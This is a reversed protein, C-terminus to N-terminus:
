YVSFCFLLEMGFVVLASRMFLDNRGCAVGCLGLAYSGGMRISRVKHLRSNIRNTTADLTAKDRKTGAEITVLCKVLESHLYKSLIETLSLVM